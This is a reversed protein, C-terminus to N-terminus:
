IMENKIKDSFVQISKRKDAVENRLKQIEYEGSVIHEFTNMLWKSSVRDVRINYKELGISESFDRNKPKYELSIFPTHACM